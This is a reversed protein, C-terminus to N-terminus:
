DILGALDRVVSRLQALCGGKKDETLSVREDGTLGESWFRNAIEINSAVYGFSLNEIKVQKAFENIRKTMTEGKTLTENNTMSKNYVCYRGTCSFYVCM